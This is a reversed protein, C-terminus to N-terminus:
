IGKAFVRLKADIKAIQPDYHDNIIGIRVIKAQVLKAREKIVEEKDYLTEDVARGTTENVKSYEM